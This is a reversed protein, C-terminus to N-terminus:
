LTVFLESRGLCMKKNLFTKAKKTSAYYLTDKVVVHGFSIKDEDYIQELPKLTYRGSNKKILELYDKALLPTDKINNETVFADYFVMAKDAQGKAKLAQSYRLYVINNEPKEVMHFLSDYWKVAQDYQANFYYSNALKTYLEESKYGNEAVSLYIKQANVYDLKEYDQSAQILKKEQGRVTTITILTICFWVISYLTIKNKM